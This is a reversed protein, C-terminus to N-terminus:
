QTGAEVKASIQSKVREILANDEPIASGNELDAYFNSFDLKEFNIAQLQEVTIGNCDPSEPNGFGIGLQWQRGQQQVIQALKSEFVCYARKKQLCVGLVKTSCYEGVDVTLLRERAQGLAKEESNCHALGVDSGWGGGKCCNNFGASAKRCSQGNGTFARVNIGNLEAVDKGAAAVAALQSIATKFDNTNGSAVQVCSGDTCFFQGGCMMGSGSVKTECSYTANEHLCFGDLSYACQRTALTCAANNVYATCSGEDATQTLYTDTYGWCDSHVTYTKGDVVVSRDGGAVTCETNTLAGQSKDFPCSESWAVSPVWAKVVVRMTISLVFHYRMNPFQWINATSPVDNAQSLVVVPLTEGETFAQGIPLGASGNESSMLTRQGLVTVAMTWAPSGFALRKNWSYTLTANMVQGAPMPYTAMFQGNTVAFNLASSDITIKRVETTDEYHGTISATRTCTQSVNTDRECVYNTFVSKNVSAATCNDFTGNTVSEATSQADTGAAIFPADMSIAEAPNNLMSSTVAQGAESGALVQNGQTDLNTSPITVGGYYGSESPKADYNPLNDAPKFNTLAQTGKSQVSGAYQSGADYDGNARSSGTLLIM